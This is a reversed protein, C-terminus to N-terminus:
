DCLNIATLKLFIVTVTVFRTVQIEKKKHAGAKSCSSKFFSSVRKEQFRSREVILRSAPRMEVVPPVM